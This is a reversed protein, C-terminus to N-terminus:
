PIYKFDAQLTIFGVKIYKLIGLKKFGAKKITKHSVLNGWDSTVFIREGDKINNKCIQTLIYSNIGLGRYEPFTQGYFVLYDAGGKFVAHNAFPYPYFRNLRAVVAYAVVANQYFMLYLQCGQRLYYKFKIAEKKIEPRTTHRELGALDRVVECGCEIRPRLDPMGALNGRSMCFVYKKGNCYIRHKLLSLWSLTTNLVVKNIKGGRSLIFILGNLM